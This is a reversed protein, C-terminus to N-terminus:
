KCQAAGEYKELRYKLEKDTVFPLVDKWEHRWATQCFRCSVIPNCGIETNKIATLAYAPSKGNWFVKVGDGKIEPMKEGHYCPLNILLGIEHSVQIIGVDKITYPDAFGNLIEGRNYIKYQGPELDDEDPFPLRWRLDLEKSCDLSNEEPLVKERDEYRIYYMDECTGIKISNGKYTAYEGM